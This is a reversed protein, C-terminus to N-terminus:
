NTYTFCLFIFLYSFSRILLESNNVTKNYLTYVLLIYSVHIMAVSEKLKALCSTKNGAEYSVYSFVNERNSVDM